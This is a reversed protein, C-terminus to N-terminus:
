CCCLLAPLGDTEKWRASRGPGQRVSKVEERNRGMFTVAWGGGRLSIVGQNSEIRNTIEM